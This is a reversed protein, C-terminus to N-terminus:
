RPAAPLMTEGRRIRPKCPFSRLKRTEGPAPGDPPPPPLGQGILAPPVAPKPPVAPAPAINSPAPPATGENRAERATFSGEVVRAISKSWSASRWQRPLNLLSSSSRRGASRSRRNRQGHRGYRLSITPTCLFLFFWSLRLRWRRVPATTSPSILGIDVGLRISLQRTPGISILVM